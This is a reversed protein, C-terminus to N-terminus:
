LKTICVVIMYFDVGNLDAYKKIYKEMCDCSRISNCRIDETKNTEYYWNDGTYELNSDLIDGGLIIVQNQLAEGAIDEVCTIKWALEYESIYKSESHLKQSMWSYNSM